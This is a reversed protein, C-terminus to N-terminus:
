WNGRATSTRDGTSSSTSSPSHFRSGSRVRRVGPLGNVSTEIPFTVNQEVENASLGGAETLIIVTPANLEPFVDVPMKPVQWASFVLVIIAVVIVLASQRLSFAILQKLM